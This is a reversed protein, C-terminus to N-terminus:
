GNTSAACNRCAPDHLALHQRLAKTPSVAAGHSKRRTLRLQSGKGQSITSSRTGAPGSPFRCSDSPSQRPCGLGARAHRYAAICVGRSNGTPGSVSSCPRGTQSQRPSRAPSARRGIHGDVRLHQRQLLQPQGAARGKADNGAALAQELVGVAHRPTRAYIVPSLWRRMWQFALACSSVSSTLFNWGAIASLTAITSSRFRLGIRNAAGDAAALPRDHDRRRQGAIDDPWRWGTPSIVLPRSETVPSIVGGMGVRWPWPWRIVCTSRAPARASARIQVSSPRMAAAGADGLQFPARRQDDHRRLQVLRGTPAACPRDGRSLTTPRTQAGCGLKSACGRGPRFAPRACHVARNPFLVQVSNVSVIRPLAPPYYRM